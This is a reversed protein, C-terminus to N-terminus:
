HLPRGNGAEASFRGGSTVPTEWTLSLLHGLPDQADQWGGLVIIKGTSFCAGTSSYSCDCCAALAAPVFDANGSPVRGKFLWSVRAGGTLIWTQGRSGPLSTCRTEEELHPGLASRGQQEWM